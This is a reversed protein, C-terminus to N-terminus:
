VLRPFVAFGSGAPALGAPLAAPPDRRMAPPATAALRYRLEADHSSAATVVAQVPLGQRALTWRRFDAASAGILFALAGGIVLDATEGIAIGDLVLSLCVAVALYIGLGLWLRHWLLWGPAILAAMWSFGSPVMTIDAAAPDQGPRHHVTYFRM